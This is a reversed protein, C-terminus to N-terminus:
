KSSYVDPNWLEMFLEPNKLSTFGFQQYLGHADRTALTIRRLGQLQPHEVIQQLLWKGVGRGRHEKAVFLDALYATTAYDTVMGVFAVQGDLETYVGFCLSNKLSRELTEFPINKAWYSNSIFGHILELDMEEFSNSLRYNEM